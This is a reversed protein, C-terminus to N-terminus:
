CEKCEEAAMKAKTALVAPVYLLTERYPPVRTGSRQVAGPGANYAALALAANGQYRDLLHRLHRVGVDANRAPDLLDSSSAGYRAATAPLVQMVGIAGKPSHATPSLASEVRGVALAMDVPVGHRVAADRILARIRAAAHGRRVSALHTHQGGGGAAPPAALPVLTYSADLAQSAYRATGDPAISAYIGEAQASLAVGLICAASLRTAMRKTAEEGRKWWAAM